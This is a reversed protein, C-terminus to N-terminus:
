LNTRRCCLSLINSSYHIMFHSGIFTRHTMYMIYAFLFTMLHSPFDSISTQHLIHQGHHLPVVDMRWKSSFLYTYYGLFGSKMNSSSLYLKKLWLFIKNDSTKKHTQQDPVKYKWYSRINSMSNRCKEWVGQLLKLIWSFVSITKFVSVPQVNKRPRGTLLILTQVSLKTWPFIHVIYELGKDVFWM